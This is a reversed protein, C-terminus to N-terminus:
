KHNKWFGILKPNTNTSIPKNFTEATWAQSSDWILLASSPGIMLWKSASLQMVDFM